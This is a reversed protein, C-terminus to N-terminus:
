KEEPVEFATVALVTVADIAEYVAMIYRGDRTYGFSTPLGSTHSIDQTKPHRVVFEFDDQSVGHEAIHAIIEDTWIFNFFPM